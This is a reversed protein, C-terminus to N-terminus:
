RARRKIGILCLLGSGLLLYAGPIPVASVKDTDLYFRYDEDPALGDGSFSIMVSAYLDKTITGRYTVGDITSFIPTVPNSFSSPNEDVYGLESGPTYKEDKLVDFVINAFGQGEIEHYFGELIFSTMYMGSKNEMKWNSLTNLGNFYTNGGQSLVFDDNKAKGSDGLVGFM